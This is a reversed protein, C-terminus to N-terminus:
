EVDRATGRLWGELILQAAVADVVARRARGDMGRERLLAHAESTTYAEDSFALRLEPRARTLRDALFRADRAAPGESGDERLPIGVVLLEVQREDVIALLADIDARPSTRTLVSLPLAVVGAPDTAALGIRRRGM